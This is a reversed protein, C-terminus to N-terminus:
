HIAGDQWVRFLTLSQLNCASTVSLGEYRGLGPGDGPIHGQSPDLRSKLFHVALGLRAVHLLLRATDRAVQSQSPACKLWDDLYPLVKMGQKQLPALAAAM